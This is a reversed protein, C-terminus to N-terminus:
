REGQQKTQQEAKNPNAQINPGNLVGLFFASTVDHADFEAKVEAFLAFAALSAPPRQKNRAAVVTTM